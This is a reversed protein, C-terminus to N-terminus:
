SKDIQPRIIVRLSPDNTIMAILWNYFIKVKNRFGAIPILHIFLWTLWAIYGSFFFKPFDVVANYKSIIAMSGKDNYRFKKIPKSATINKINKALLKGQQIAVQALQPHGQPYNKEELQLCMDGIAFVNNTGNVRNYENVLIRRGKGTSNEPLGIVERAVVGSTWILLPTDIVEGNSLLVQQNKYDKVATNLKLIVGLAELTKKADLQSSVSMVNLVNQPSNVLYIKGKSNQMEPYEKNMIKTGMEAIMGALEVGTPGGGAIVINTLKLREAENETQVAKEMNLLIKNRLHLADDISKMPLANAKANEIDFYNTETGMALVLYDYALSGTDTEITNKSPNVKLFTGYHFRINKKNQFMKRFPYTINSTEIFATAVQYLLPPFFHYNNKDVLIIQFDPNNSLQKAFNVGAFGGGVVVIKKTKM